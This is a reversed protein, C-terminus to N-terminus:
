KKGERIESRLNLTNKLYEKVEEPTRSQRLIEMGQKAKENAKQKNPEDKINRNDLLMMKKKYLEKYESSVNNLYEIRQPNTLDQIREYIKRGIINDRTRTTTTM